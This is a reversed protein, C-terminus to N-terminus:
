CKNLDNNNSLKIDEKNSNQLLNNNKNQSNENVEILNIINQDQNNESDIYNDSIINQYKPFNSILENDNNNLNTKKSNDISIDNEESEFEDYNNDYNWM